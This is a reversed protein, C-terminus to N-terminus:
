RKKPKRFDRQMHRLLLISCGHKHQGRLADSVRRITRHVGKARLLHPHELSVQSQRYLLSPPRLRWDILDRQRRSRVKATLHWAVISDRALRVSESPRIRQLIKDRKQVAFREALERGHQRAHVSWLWRALVIKGGCELAQCHSRQPNRLLAVLSM